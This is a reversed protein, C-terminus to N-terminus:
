LITQSTSKLQGVTGPLTEVTLVLAEVTLSLLRELPCKDDGRQEMPRKSGVVYM